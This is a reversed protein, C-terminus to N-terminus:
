EEDIDLRLQEGDGSPFAREFNSEFKRWNPSIKMLTTVVALQKELHPEGIDETLFQHHRHTRHGKENKPNKSKLEALVGPPLKDYILRNTLKGVYRPRKVSLPNYPWNHLRFMEKYFENPFRKQWPRLEEAIYAQLIQFLENKARVDQYGTAEDILAIIGIKAFARILIDAHKAYRLEQETKLVGSDRAALITECINLLITAEYGITSSGFGSLKLPKEIALRLDENILPKLAKHDLIRAIGQGRGKMGIASTITRGSLVRLGEDTVYCPIKVEGIELEGRFALKYTKEEMLCM